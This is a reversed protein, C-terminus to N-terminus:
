MKCLLLLFKRFYVCTEQLSGKAASVQPRPSMGTTQKYTCAHTLHLIMIKKIDKHFGNIPLKEFNLFDLRCFNQSFQM